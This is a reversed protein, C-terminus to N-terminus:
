NALYKDSRRLAKFAGKYDGKLYKEDSKNELLEIIKNIKKLDLKSKHDKILDFKSNYINSLEKKFKEIIKRNCFKSKLYSKVEMKDEFAGRFNGERYKKESAKTLKIIDKLSLNEFNKM